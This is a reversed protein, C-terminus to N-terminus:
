SQTLYANIIYVSLNYCGHAIAIGHLAKFRLFIFGLFASSIVANLFGWPGEYIHCVSFLIVSLALAPAADLGLEDRRTLLYFRFFTEELYAAIM